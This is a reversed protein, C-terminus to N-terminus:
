PRARVATNQALQKALLKDWGFLVVGDLPAVLPDGVENLVIPAPNPHHDEPEGDAGAKECPFEDLVLVPSHELDHSIAHGGGLTRGLGQLEVHGQNKKRHTSIGNSPKSALGLQSKHNGEIVINVEVLYSSIFIIYLCVKIVKRKLAQSHLNSPKIVHSM